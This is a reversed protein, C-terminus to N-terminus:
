EWPRWLSTATIHRFRWHIRLSVNDPFQQQCIGCQHQNIRHSNLQHRLLISQYPFIRPCQTCAYSTVKRTMPGHDPHKIKIHARLTNDRPYIKHCDKAPCPYQHPTLSTHIIRIHEARTKKHWFTKTCQEYPCHLIPNGLHIFHHHAKLDRASSFLLRKEPCETCPFYPHTISSLQSDQRQGLHSWIHISREQTTDFSMGCCPCITTQWFEFDTALNQMNLKSM